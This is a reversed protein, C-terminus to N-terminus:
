AKQQLAQYALNTVLKLTKVVKSCFHTNVREGKLKIKM